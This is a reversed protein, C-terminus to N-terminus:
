ILAINRKPAKPLAKALAEVEGDDEDADLEKRVADTMEPSNDSWAGQWRPAHNSYTHIRTPATHIPIFSPTSLIHTFPRPPPTFLTYAAHPCATSLASAPHIPTYPHRASVPHATHAALKQTM